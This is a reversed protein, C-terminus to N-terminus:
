KLAKPELDHCYIGPLRCSSKGDLDFDIRYGVTFFFDTTEEEIAGTKRQRWDAGAELELHVNRHVEYDILVSPQISYETLDLDTGELYGFRLRPRFWLSQSLPYRTQLDLVYLDTDRRDAFRIGALSTDNKAFLNNAIFQLSYYYEDGTSPLGPMDGVGTTGKTNTWTIDFAVQFFENLQRTVGIHASSYSATRDLAYQKVETETHYKLMDYLTPFLTGQLANWSTLFPSKRHDIGGQVVTKDPLRWSWNLIAMNVENFHLDYDFTGFATLTPGIYRLETGIAQRDIVSRARQELGYLSVDLGNSFTLGVSAGYLYKDDKFPENYRSDVPSGGVLGFRLLETAQWKAAVGDFRSFVGDSNHRFRGIQLNTNWPFYNVEYSLSGIGVIDGKEGSLDHKEIGSFRLKSRSYNNAWMATMVFSSLLMNRNVEHQDPDPNIEPPLSPDRLKRFSDDRVYSQSFSGSASWEAGKEPGKAKRRHTASRRRAHPAGDVTALARLRQRVRSTGPGKPYRRLYDRYQIEASRNDGLKQLAVGYRELAERTSENEPAELIKRLKEIARKYHRKRLAARAEDMMGALRWAEAKSLKGQRQHIRGQTPRRTDGGPATVITARWPNPPFKPSCKVHEKDKLAVIISTPLRGPGADVFLTKTFSLRLTTGAAGSRDFEIPNITALRTRVPSAAERQLRSIDGAILPVVPRVRVTLSRGSSTPIHGAYQIPFNFNVRLRVCHASEIVDVDALARDLVPEARVMTISCALTTLTCLACSVVAQAQRIALKPRVVCKSHTSSM